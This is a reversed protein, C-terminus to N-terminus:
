QIVYPRDGDIMGVHCVLARQLITEIARGDTLEKDKRRM